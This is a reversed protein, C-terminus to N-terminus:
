AGLLRLAAASTASAVEDLGVELIEAIAPAAEVLYAPENRKGRHRQPAGYPSDTEIVMSGLGIRRVVDRLLEARPHTVSTHISILFGMDIYREALDADGAFYHLVGFPRPQREMSSSWARLIDFVDDQADRAHVAVPKGVRAATALQREFVRRQDAQPSLNRYYDLGIEGVVVVAPDSSWDDLARLDDETADAADHPHVGVAAFVFDVSRALSLAAESDHRNVGLTLIASVSATRARGLVDDLDAFGAHIHAHTDIFSPSPM